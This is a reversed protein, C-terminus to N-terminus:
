VNEDYHDLEDCTKVIESDVFKKMFNEKNQKGNLDFINVMFSFSVKQLGRSFQFM